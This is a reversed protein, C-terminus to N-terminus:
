SQPASAKRAGVTVVELDQGIRLGHGLGDLFHALVQEGYERAFNVRYLPV